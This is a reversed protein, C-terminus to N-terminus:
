DNPNDPNDNAIKKTWFQQQPNNSFYNILSQWVFLDNDNKIAIRAAYSQFDEWDQQCQFSVKFIFFKCNKLAIHFIQTVYPFVIQSPNILSLIQVKTLVHFM